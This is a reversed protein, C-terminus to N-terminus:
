TRTVGDSRVRVVQRGESTAEWAAVPGALSPRLPRESAPALTQEHGDTLDRLRLEAGDAVPALYLLQCGDAAYPPYHYLDGTAVAVGDARHGDCAPAGAQGSAGASGASNQGSDGSSGSGGAGAQGSSGSAGASGGPGGSAGARDDRCALLLSACLAFLLPYKM